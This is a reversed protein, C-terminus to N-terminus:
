GSFCFPYSEASSWSVTPIVSLGHRQWYAGCYRNRYVNWLQAALPWDRYLSFDPTLVFPYKSVSQLGQRPKRWVIEFRYDDLFFHTCPSDLPEQPRARYGYAVLTKPLQSVSAAALQPIGWGDAAPYRTDLHLSNAYGPQTQWNHSSRTQTM